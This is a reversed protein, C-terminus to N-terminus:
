KKHKKSVTEVIDTVVIFAMGVTAFFVAVYCM